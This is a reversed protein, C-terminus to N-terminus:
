SRSRLTAVLLAAVLLLLLSLGGVVASTTAGADEVSCAPTTVTGCEAATTITNGALTVPQPSAEVVPLPSGPVGRVAVTPLPAPYAPFNSVGVTPLPTPAAPDTGWQTVVCSQGLQGYTVGIGPDLDGSTTECTWRLAAGGTAPYPAPTPLAM